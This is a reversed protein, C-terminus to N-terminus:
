PLFRGKWVGVMGSISTMSGNFSGDTQRTGIYTAGGNNSVFIMTIQPGVLTWTGVTTQSTGGSITGNSNLKMTASPWKEIGGRVQSLSTYTWAYNLKFTQSTVQASAPEAYATFCAGALVYMVLSLLGRRFPSTLYIM